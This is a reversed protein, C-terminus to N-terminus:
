DSVQRPRNRQTDALQSNPTIIAWARDRVKMAEVMIPLRPLTTGGSSNWWLLNEVASQCSFEAADNFVRAVVSETPVRMKKHIRLRLAKAAANSTSSVVRLQRRPKASPFLERQPSYLLREEENKLALGAEIHLVPTATRTSCANLTAQLSASPCFDTRIQRVIEFTLRGDAAVQRQLLPDFLQPYFGLDGAIIDMMKEIADKKVTSRHLPLQLQEFLTLVHAIEHWRSFFRKSGKEGRCDVVAVYTDDTAGIPRRCRILTAFTEFDLNKRLFAFASDKRKRAYEDVIRELDEDCWVEFITIKLEDCVARELDEICGIKSRKGTLATVRMRCFDRIGVVPDGSHVGLAHAMSIIKPEEALKM